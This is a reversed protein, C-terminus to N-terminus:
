TSFECPPPNEVTVRLTILLEWSEGCHTKKPSIYKKGTIVARDVVGGLTPNNYIARSIAGSYAYCYLESEPTEPFTITISLSYADLRIIREKETRECSTLSIVPAVSGSGCYDGFEIVPIAYQSERLIENVRLFLFERVARLIGTEIFEEMGNDEM